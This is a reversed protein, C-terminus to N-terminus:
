VHDCGTVLEDGAAGAAHHASDNGPPPGICAYSRRMDKLGCARVLQAHADEGARDGVDGRVGVQGEKGDRSGAAGGVQCLGAQAPGLDAVGPVAHAARM